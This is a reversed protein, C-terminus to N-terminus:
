AYESSQHLSNDEDMITGVERAADRVFAWAGAQHGVSLLAHLITEFQNDMVFWVCCAQLRPLRQLRQLLFRSTHEEERYYIELGQISIIGIYATIM